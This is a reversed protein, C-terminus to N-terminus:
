TELVRKLIRVSITEVQGRIESDELELVLRKIVRDLMSIVIPIMM